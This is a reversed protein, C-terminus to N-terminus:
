REQREIGLREYMEFWVPFERARRRNEETRQRELFQQIKARIEDAVKAPDPVKEFTFRGQKAATEVIVNGYNLIYNLPGLVDYTVNTIDSLSSQRVDKDFYVPFLLPKMETDIIESNTVEYTDNHWDQVTWWLWTSCFMALLGAPIAGVGWLLLGSFLYFVIFGVVLGILGVTLVGPVFTMGLLVIWHKRWLIRDSSQELLLQQRGRRAFLLRWLSGEVREASGAKAPTWVRPPMDTGLGLQRELANYIERKGGAEYHLRRLRQQELIRAQLAEPHFLFDFVLAGKEASTQIYITGYSWFNGWVSKKEIRVDRIQELLATQHHESFFIV